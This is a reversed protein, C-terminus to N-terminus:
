RASVFEFTFSYNKDILMHSESSELQVKSETCAAPRRSVLTCQIKRVPVFCQLLLVHVFYTTSRVWVVFLVTRVALCALTALKAKQLCIVLVIICLVDNLDCRQDHLSSLCIAPAYRCTNERDKSAVTRLLQITVSV